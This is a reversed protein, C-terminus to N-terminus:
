IVRAATRSGRATRGGSGARPPWWFRRAILRENHGIETSDWCYADATDLFNIGADFAAHLVAISREDDRTRETSLRMCGMGILPRGDSITM